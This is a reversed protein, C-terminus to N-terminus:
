PGVPDPTATMVLRLPGDAARPVSPSAVGAVMRCSGLHMLARLRMSPRLTTALMPNREGKRSTASGHAEDTALGPRHMRAGHRVAFPFVHVCPCVVVRGRRQEPSYENSAGGSAGPRAFASAACRSARRMRRM